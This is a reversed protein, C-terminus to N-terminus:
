HFTGMAWEELFKCGAGILWGVDYGFSTDLSIKGGEIRIAEELDLITINEMLTRKLISKNVMTDM